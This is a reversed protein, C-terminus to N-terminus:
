SVALKRSSSILRAFVPAGILATIVGIPIEAPAAVTRATLDATLLLCAGALGSAPMIVRHDAGVVMRLMHPVILGVFGIIGAVAVSAGTSLAVCIIIIKKIREVSVGAHYAESEGLSFLNLSRSFFLLIFTPLIIIPGVKAIIEWSAGGLDGLTWFTFNRLTVDDAFWIILGILAGTIANVAVGSLILITTNTRGQINKAMSYTLAVAGLSGLFAFFPLAGTVSLNLKFLAKWAVIAAIAAVGAGGSIGLLSSEALPNRLLGQMAAGSIGLASGILVALVVRPLRVTLLITKIYTDEASLHGSILKGLFSFIDQLSLHIAGTCAAVLMLIPLTGLLIGLTLRHKSKLIFTPASLM